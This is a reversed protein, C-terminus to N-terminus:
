AASDVAPPLEIVEAGEIEEQEDLWALLQDLKDSPLAQFYSRIVASVNVNVEKQRLVQWDPDYVQLFKELLRDSDVMARRFGEERLRELRHQAHELSGIAEGYSRAFDEDYFPSGPSCIARFHRGKFGLTKAAEQRNLGIRIAQLFEIKESEGIDATTLEREEVQESM